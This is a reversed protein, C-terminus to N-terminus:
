KANKLWEEFDKIRWNAFHLPIYGVNFVHHNKIPNQTHADFEIAYKGILFDIEYGGVKMQTRFPIHQRKLIEMVRRETKTSHKKILKLHERRM